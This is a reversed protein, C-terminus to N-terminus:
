FRRPIQMQQPHPPPLHQPLQQPPIQVPLPITQMGHIPLFMDRRPVPVGPIPMQSMQPIQPMQQMQQMQQPVSFMMPVSMPYDPRMQSVSQVRPPALRHFEAENITHLPEYLMCLVAYTFQPNQALFMRTKQRDTRAMVCLANITDRAVSENCHTMLTKIDDATSNSAVYPRAYSTSPVVVATTSPLSTNNINYDSYEEHYQSPATSQHSPGM